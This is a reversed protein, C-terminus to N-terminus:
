QPAAVGPQAVVVASVPVLQLGRLSVTAAWAAIRGTTVPLPTSVLGIAAGRDHALQELRALKAEIEVRVPPDDIVVDIGRRPPRANGHLVQSDPRPDVYLLGRRALEDLVPAM